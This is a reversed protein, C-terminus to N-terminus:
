AADWEVEGDAGTPFLDDIQEHLLENNKNTIKTASLWKGNIKKLRLAQTFSGNRATFFINYSQEPSNEVKWNQLMSAHSPILNGVSINTDSYAMNGLSLNNKIQNFKQLDVIRSNVDYLPHEGKHIVMLVGTDTNPDLMGIQFYPFSNGGSIHSIMENTKNEVENLLEKFRAEMLGFNDEVKSQKKVRFFQGTLWSLLFFTPGFVNVVKKIDWPEASESGYINYLVWMISLSLPIWFEKVIQKIIGM